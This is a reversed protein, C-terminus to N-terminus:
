YCGLQKLISDTETKLFVKIYRPVEEKEELMFRDWGTFLYLKTYGEKHLIKAIEIGNIDGLTYDLCIHIDKPYKKFNQLFENGSYYINTKKGYKGFLKALGEAAIESDEVM